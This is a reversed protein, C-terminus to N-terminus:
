QINIMKYAEYKVQNQDNYAIKHIQLNKQIM